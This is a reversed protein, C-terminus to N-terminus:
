AIHQKLKTFVLFLLLFLLFVYSLNVIFADEDLYDAENVEFLGLEADQVVGMKEDEADNETVIGENNLPDVREQLEEDSQEM